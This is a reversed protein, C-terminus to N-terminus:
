MLNWVKGIEVISLYKAKLLQIGRLRILSLQCLHLTIHRVLMIWWWWCKRRYWVNGLKTLTKKIWMKMRAYGKTVCIMYSNNLSMMSITRQIWMRWFVLNIMNTTSCIIFNTTWLPNGLGVWELWVLLLDRKYCSRQHVRKHAEVVLSKLVLGGFSYAILAVPGDWLSQYSCYIWCHM